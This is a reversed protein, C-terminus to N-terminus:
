WVGPVIRYPVRRVYEAFAAEGYKLSMQLDDDIQRPIFLAVYYLPYLWPLLRYYASTGVLTGPLALATAQLIEGLYNVHRSVGWFGTCLLRTQPVLEMRLGGMARSAREAGRSKFLFKQLNAQPTACSSLRATVRSAVRTSRHPPQISLANGWAHAGMWM